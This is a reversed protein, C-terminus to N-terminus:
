CKRKKKTDRKKLSTGKKNTRSSKKTTTPSEQSVKLNRDFKVIWMNTEQSEKNTRVGVAAVQSNQLITVANLTDYNSDGFHEQRILKFNRDLLMVLADTDGKDKTYGVGIIESNSYEKIDTLVSEYRTDVMKDVIINQQLDVKILRIQEQDIDNKQSLSLIFRDERLKLIKHPIVNKEGGYNELWLRDGNQSIRILIASGFGNYKRQGLVMITGDNAEVADIGIDDQPTGYKKSWLRDGDRSLRTIHIDSLGLGTEFLEDSPSRSTASSGIALVGGDSLAVLKSMREFQTTGFIKKFIITGSTDLKAILLSGNLTHGGVFYGNTPTKLISVIENFESLDATKRLIIAGEDVKVLHMQSGYINSVSSLYEFPNTYTKQSDSSTKKYSKLFGVASITGDYDEIVDFIANNFPEKIVISFDSQKAYLFITTLIFALIYHM